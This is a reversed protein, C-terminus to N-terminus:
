EPTSVILPWNVEGTTILHDLVRVAQAQTLDSYLSYIGTRRLDTSPFFLSDAQAETLGLADRVIGDPTFGVKEHEPGETFLAEAWGGICAATGCDHKVQSRTPRHDPADPGRDRIIAWYEMAFRSPDLAAITDRLITLNTTNLAM